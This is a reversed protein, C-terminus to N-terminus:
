ANELGKGKDRMGGAAKSRPDPEQQNGAPRGAGPHKEKDEIIEPQIWGDSM